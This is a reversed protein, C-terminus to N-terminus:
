DEPSADKWGPAQEDDWEPQKKQRGRRPKAVASEVETDIVANEETGGILEALGSKVYRAASVDDVDVVQGPEVGGDISHFTGTVGQKMRIRM